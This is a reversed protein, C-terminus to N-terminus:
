REYGYSQGTIKRLAEASEFHITGNNDNLAVQLASVAETARANGLAIASNWRHDNAKASDQVVSILASIGASRKINALGVAAENRVSAVDENFSKILAQESNPAAIQSLAKASAHRVVEEGDGQLKAILPEAAERRGSNGLALASGYRIAVTGDNLM